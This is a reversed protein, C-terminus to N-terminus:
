TNEFTQTMYNQNHRQVHRLLFSVLFVKVNPEPNNENRGAFCSYMEDGLM